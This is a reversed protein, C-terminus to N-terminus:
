EVRKVKIKELGRVVRRGTKLDGTSIFLIHDPIDKMIKGEL